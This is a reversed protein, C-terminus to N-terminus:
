IPSEPSGASDMLVAEDDRVFTGDDLAKVLGLAVLARLKTEICPMPIGTMYHIAEADRPEGTIAALMETEEAGLVSAIIPSVSGAVEKTIM